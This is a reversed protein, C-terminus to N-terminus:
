NETARREDEVSLFYNGDREQLSLVKRFVLDLLVLFTAIAEKKSSVEKFFVSWPYQKKRQGKIIDLVRQRCKEILMAFQADLQLIAEREPASLLTSCLKLLESFDLVELDTYRKSQLRSWRERPAKFLSEEKDHLAALLSSIEDLWNEKSLSQSDALPESHKPEIDGLIHSLAQEIDSLLEEILTVKDSFTPAEKFNVKSWKDLLEM